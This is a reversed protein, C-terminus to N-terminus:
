GTVDIGTWLLRRKVTFTGDVVREEREASSRPLSSEVITKMKEGEVSQGGGRDSGTIDNVLDEMAEM